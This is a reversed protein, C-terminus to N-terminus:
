LTSFHPRGIMGAAVTINDTLYYSGPRNIAFPATASLTQVPIRPEVQHLTKMTPMPNGTGDLPAIPGVAPDAAAPPNLPGQAFAATAALLPLLLLLKMATQLKM